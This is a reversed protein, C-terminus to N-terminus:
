INWLKRIHEVGSKLDAEKIGSNPEFVVHKVSEAFTKLAAFDVKGMGPALHEDDFAEVDNLHM